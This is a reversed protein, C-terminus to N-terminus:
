EKNILFRTHEASVSLMQSTLIYTIKTSVGANSATSLEIMFPSKSLFVWTSEMHSHSLILIEVANALKLYESM